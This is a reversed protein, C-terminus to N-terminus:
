AKGQNLSQIDRSGGNDIEIVGVEMARGARPRFSPPHSM